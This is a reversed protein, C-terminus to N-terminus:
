REAEASEGLYQNFWEVILKLEEDSEPWGHEAGSKVFLKCPVHAAELKKILIESQQIPVLQDNDGHLLLIPADHESVDYLPSIHKYHAILKEKDSVVKIKLENPDFERLELATNFPNKGEMTKRVQEDFSGGEHGYNLFDTPPFYAVVAQVQGDKTGQMLSLHGGASGGLVGIRNGEIGFTTANNQIFDIASTTQVIIENCTFRPSSGHVVYFLTYGEKLLAAAAKQYRGPLQGEGNPLLTDHNSFWGGSMIMAVAAGNQQKPTVVDFTLAFGDQKSYIVDSKRTFAFEQATLTRSIFLSISLLLFLRSTKM